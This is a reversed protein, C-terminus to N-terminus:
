TGNIINKRNFSYQTVIVDILRYIKSLISRYSCTPYTWGSGTWILTM